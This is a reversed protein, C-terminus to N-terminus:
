YSRQQCLTDINNAVEVTDTVENFTMTATAGNVVNLTAPSFVADNITTTEGPDIITVTFAITDTETFSQANYDFKIAM